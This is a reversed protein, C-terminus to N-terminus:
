EEETGEDGRLGERFRKVAVYVLTVLGCLFIMSSGAFLTEPANFNTGYLSCLFIILGVIIPVFILIRGIVTLASLWDGSNQKRKRM